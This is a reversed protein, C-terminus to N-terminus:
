PEWLLSATTLFTDSYSFLLIKYRSHLIPLFLSYYFQFSATHGVFLFTCYPLVCISVRFPMTLSPLLCLSTLLVNLINLSTYSSIPTSFTSIYLPIVTFASKSLPVVLINISQFIAAFCPNLGYFNSLSITTLFTLPVFL